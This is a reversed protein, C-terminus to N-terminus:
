LNSLIVLKNLVLFYSFPSNFIYIYPCTKISYYLMLMILSFNCNKRCEEIGLIM